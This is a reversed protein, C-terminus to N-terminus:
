FGIKLENLCKKYKDENVGSGNLNKFFVLLNYVIM